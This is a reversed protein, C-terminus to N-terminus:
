GKSVYATKNKIDLTASTDGNGLSAMKVQHHLGMKQLSTLVGKVNGASGQSNAGVLFIQTNKEGTKIHRRLLEETPLGGIGRGSFTDVHACLTINKQMVMVALCPDLDTTYLATEQAPPSSFVKANSNGQKFYIVNYGHEQFSDYSRRKPGEDGENMSLQITQLNKLQLLQDAPFKKLPNGSLNLHQLSTLKGLCAPILTLSRHSLDLETRQNTFCDLIDRKTSILGEKEEKSFANEIQMELENEIARQLLLNQSELSRAPAPQAMSALASTSEAGAATSEASPPSTLDNCEARHPQLRPPRRGGTLHILPQELPDRQQGQLSSQGTIPPTSATTQGTQNSGSTDNLRNQSSLSPCGRLDSPLM